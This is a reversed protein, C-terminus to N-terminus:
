NKNNEDTTENGAEVGGLLDNIKEIVCRPLARNQRNVLLFEGSLPVVSWSETAVVPLFPVAVSLGKQGATRVQEELEALDEESKGYLADRIKRLPLGQAQYFRIAVLQLRHKQSFTKAYNGVPPDLLGLTRYYRITRETLEESAQGNAPYVRYQECWGQVARALEELTFEATM